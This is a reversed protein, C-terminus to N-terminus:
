LPVLRLGPPWLARYFEEWMVRFFSLRKKPHIKRSRSKLVVQWMVEKFLWWGLIAFWMVVGIVETKKIRTWEYRQIWKLDKFYEEIEFRKAYINLVQQRTLESDNTLLFWPEEQKMKPDWKSVVLRLKLEAYKCQTEEHSIDKIRKREDWPVEIYRNSVVRCVFKVGEGNLFRLLEPSAFWRDMAIVIKGEYNVKKLFEKLAKILQPIMTRKDPKEPYAELWIPIARGKGTTVSLKALQFSGLKTIDLSLRVQGLTLKNIYMVALGMMITPLKEDRVTRYARMEGTNRNEATSRGNANISTFPQLSFAQVGFLFRQQLKKPVEPLYEDEIKQRIKRGITFDRM